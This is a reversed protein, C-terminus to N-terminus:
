PNGSNGSGACIASIAVGHFGYELTAVQYM